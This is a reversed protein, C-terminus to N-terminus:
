PKAGVICLKRGVMARLGKDSVYDEQTKGDLFEVADLGYVLLGLEVVKFPETTRQWQVM